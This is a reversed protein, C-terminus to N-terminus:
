DINPENDKVHCGDKKGQTNGSAFEHRFTRARRKQLIEPGSWTTKRRLTGGGGGRQVVITGRREGM